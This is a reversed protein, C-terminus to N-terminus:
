LVSGTGAEGRTLAGVGLGRARGAGPDAACMYRLPAAGAARRAGPRGGHSFPSSGHVVLQRTLALVGQRPGDPAGGGLTVGLDGRGVQEGAEEGLVVAGGHVQQLGDAGIPLAQAGLGLLLEFQQRLGLACRDAGRGARALQQDREVGRRGAGLLQLVLVDGGLVQQDAEGGVAALDGLQELRLAGGRARQQVGELLDAAVGPDGALARLVGVARQLLVADVEGLLRPGALEVRDDAAVVLDAADDLHQAAPGLVVGHQDALRADALGGHDVAEGLADHGAVDGLAQAVLAQDREVEARHDRARLEAALELLPELGHEVLDLLAVALDDGEDVLQVGHDARAGGLARHVGAVHELGHQGPALQAHDARGGEVLVALADLLVGCQLPAELLDVDALGRDLVGDRDQAAELPAVLGVM